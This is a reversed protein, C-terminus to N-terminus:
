ANILNIINQEFLNFLKILTLQIDTISETLSEGLGPGQLSALGLHQFLHLGAPTWLNWGQSGVNFIPISLSTLSPQDVVVILWLTLPQHIISTSQYSQNHYIILFPSITIFWPWSDIILIPIVRRYDFMAPFDVGFPPKYSPFDVLTIKWSAM